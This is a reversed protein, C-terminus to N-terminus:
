KGEGLVTLYKEDNKVVDLFSLEVRTLKVPYKYVKGNKFTVYCYKKKWEIKKLKILRRDAKRM